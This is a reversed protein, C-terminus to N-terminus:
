SQKKSHFTDSSLFFIHFIFYQFCMVVFVRGQIVGRKETMVWM